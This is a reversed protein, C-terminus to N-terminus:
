NSADTPFWDSYFEKQSDQFAALFPRSLEYPGDFAKRMAVADGFEADFHFRLADACLWTISVQDSMIRALHGAELIQRENVERTARDHMLDMANKDAHALHSAMGYIHLLAKIGNLPRGIPANKNLHEIIESFSWKKEIRKREFKNGEAELNFVSGDQLAAFISSSVSGKQFISEAFAAKRATRRDSIQGLSNWFEDVLVLKEDAESLCIFFIKAATEYFSRLIIEADWTYEHSALFSVAQCRAGLYSFLNRLTANTSNQETQYRSFLSQIEDRIIMHAHLSAEQLFRISPLDPMISKSMGDGSIM